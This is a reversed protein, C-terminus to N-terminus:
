RKTLLLVTTNDELDKDSLSEMYEELSNSSFNFIQSDNKFRSWFGDSCMLITNGSTFQPYYTIDIEVDKNLTCLSRTLYRRYGNQNITDGNCKGQEVLEQARSHDVTRIRSDMLYARTDGITLLSVSDLYSTVIAISAKGKGLTEQKIANIVVHNLEELTTVSELSTVETSINKCLCDVFHPKENVFGDILISVAWNERNYFCYRDLNEARQGQLSKSYTNEFM